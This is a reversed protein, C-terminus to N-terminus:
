KVQSTADPETRKDLTGAPKGVLLIIELTLTFFYFALLWGWLAPTFIHPYASQLLMGGGLAVGLRVGTGGLVAVVQQDPSSHTSWQAWALTALAPVLCLGLATASLVLSDGGFLLVGPYAVAGWFLLTAATFLGLRKM